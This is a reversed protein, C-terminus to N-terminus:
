YAVENGDTIAVAKWTGNVVRLFKGDDGETVEPLEKTIEVQPLDKAEFETPVGNEDVAKITVYQGVTAATPKEMKDAVAKDLRKGNPLEVDSADVLAFGGNNKPKIKDILDIAM